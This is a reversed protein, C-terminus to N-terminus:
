EEEHLFRRQVRDLEELVSTTCHYVAPTSFEVTPLVQAKYQAFVDKLDYYRLTRLLTRLKWSAKVGVEHCRAEMRLKTDWRVGLGRFSEGEPKRKHVVHKTEKGADFLVQNAAGWKHM